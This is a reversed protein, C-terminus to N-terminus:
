RRVRFAPVPHSKNKLELPELEDLAPPNVLAARFEESIIIEGGKAKSCLRSAV